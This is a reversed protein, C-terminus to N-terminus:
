SNVSTRGISLKCYSKYTELMGVEFSTFKFGGILDLFKKNSGDKRYQGGLKQNFTIKVDKKISKHLIEIMEMISLNEHPAIILPENTHHSELLLPIIQALDNVYLLQRLQKGTGWFELVDGDSASSYKRILAGVFHSLLSDYNDGPGYINSPCFTSYDVGYQKRYANIQVFLSRKSYGYSLNTPAPPGLLIDEETMPYVPSTNPFTCTSLSALVRKVGAEYAHHIINTNMMTNQYYFEAPSTSNAGIGGVRGALHIVADPQLDKYMQKCSMPDILNYDKSSLYIWEPKKKELARGVFGTGGTVIVRV